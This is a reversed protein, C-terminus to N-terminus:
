PPLIQACAPTRSPPPTGGGGELADRATPRAPGGGGRRPLLLRNPLVPQERQGVMTPPQGVMTAM